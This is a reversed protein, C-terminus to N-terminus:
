HRAISAYISLTTPQAVAKGAIVPWSFQLQLKLQNYNGASASQTLPDPTKKVVCIYAVDYTAPADAAAVPAGESTFFYTTDAPSAATAATAPAPNAVTTPDAAWLADFPVARMESLVYTSMAALMTDRRANGDNSTALNLLGLISVLAFVAVGIALVIEVLSFGHRHSSLTKM